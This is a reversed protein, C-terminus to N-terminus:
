RRATDFGWRPVSLRRPAARRRCRPIQDSQAKIRPISQQILQQATKIGSSPHYPVVTPPNNPPLAHLASSPPYGLCEVLCLYVSLCGGVCWVGCWWRSVMMGGHCWSGRYTLGALNSVPSPISHSHSHSPTSFSQLPFRRQCSATNGLCPRTQEWCTKYTPRYSLATRAAFFLSTGQKVKFGVELSERLPPLVGIHCPRNYHSKIHHVERHPTCVCMRRVFRGRHGESVVAGAL